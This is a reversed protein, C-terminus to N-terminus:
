VMHYKGPTQPDMSTLHQKCASQKHVHRRPDIWDSLIIRRFWCRECCEYHWHHKIRLRDVRGYWNAKWVICLSVMFISQIIFSFFQLPWLWTWNELDEIINGAESIWPLFMRGEISFFSNVSSYFHTDMIHTYQEHRILSDWSYLRTTTQYKESRCCWVEEPFLRSMRKKKNIQQTKKLLRCNERCSLFMECVIRWIDIHNWKHFQICM